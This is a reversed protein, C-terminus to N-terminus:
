THGRVWGELCDFPTSATVIDVKCSLFSLGLNVCKSDFGSRVGLDLDRLGLSDLRLLVVGPLKTGM